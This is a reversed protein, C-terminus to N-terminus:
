DHLGFPVDVEAWGPVPQGDQEAPYLVWGVAATVAAHDLARHGSSKLIIAELVRGAPSVHLRLRVVGEIEDRRAQPPYLAPTRTRFRATSMRVPDAPAPPATAIELPLGSAPTDAPIIVPPAAQGQPAAPKVPRPTPKPRPPSPSAPTNLAPRPLDPAATEARTPTPVEGTASEIATGHVTGLGSGPPPRAILLAVTLPPPSQPLPSPRAATAQALGALVVGHLMLSGVVGLPGLGRALRSAPLVSM